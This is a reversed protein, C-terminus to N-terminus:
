RGNADMWKLFQKRAEVAEKPADDSLFCGKEHTHMIYPKQIEVLRKIEPPIITRM